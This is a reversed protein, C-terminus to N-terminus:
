GVDRGREMHWEKEATHIAPPAVLMRVASGATAIGLSLSSM